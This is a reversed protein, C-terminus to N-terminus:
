QGRAYEVDRALDEGTYHRPMSRGAVLGAFEFRTTGALERAKGFPLIGQGYLAIALERRLSSAVSEPIDLHVTM